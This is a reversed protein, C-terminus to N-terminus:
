KALSVRNEIEGTDKHIIVEGEIKDATATAFEIAGLKTEFVKTARINGDAVVTWKESNGIIVHYKRINVPKASVALRTGLKKTYIRINGTKVSVVNGKVSAVKGRTAKVSVAKGKASAVKGRTAKVSIAKGKTTKVKAM